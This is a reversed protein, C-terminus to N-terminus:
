LKKIFNVVKKFAENFEDVGDYCGDCLMTDLLYKFESFSLEYYLDDINDLNDPIKQCTLDYYDELSIKIKIDMKEGGNYIFSFNKLFMGNKQSFYFIGFNIKFM